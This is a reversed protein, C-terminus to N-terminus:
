SYMSSVILMKFLRSLFQFFSAASNSIHPHFTWWNRNTANFFLICVCVYVRAHTHAIENALELLYWSFWTIFKGM